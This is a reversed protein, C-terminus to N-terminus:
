LIEVLSRLGIEDGIGGKSRLHEIVNYRPVISFADRYLLGHKHLCDIRLKVEYSARFAGESFLKEKIPVRCKLSNLMRLCKSMEGVESGLIKPNRIIEERIENPTFGMGTFESILPKLKNELGSALIGPYTQIISDIKSRHIGIGLLFEIKSWINEENMTIIMPFEQLVRTITASSFRFGKLGEICRLVDDPYLDFKRSVELISQIMILSGNDSVGLESVGVEWGKLFDLELVRPCNYVMSVISDKSSCLSSLIKLSMEVDSISSNLLFRNRAFFNHLDSPQFGYRQFLNSLPESNSACSVLRHDFDEVVEGPCREFAMFIEGESWGWKKYLEVKMDWTSKSMSRVAHVAWLFRTKSTDFGMNKVDGIVKKFRDVSTFFTRPQLALMSVITSEPVGIERLIQINGAAYVQLDYTLAMPYRKIAKIVKDDSGLVSRLYNVCQLARDQLPRDFIDKPRASVIVAVDTSSLGISNLTQFAPLLTKEPDYLLIKPHRLASLLKAISIGLEHNM